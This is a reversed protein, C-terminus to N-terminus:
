PPPSHRLCYKNSRSLPNRGVSSLPSNLVEFPAIRSYAAPNISANKGFSAVVHLAKPGKKYHPTKGGSKNGQAVNTTRPRLVGCRPSEMSSRGLGGVTHM